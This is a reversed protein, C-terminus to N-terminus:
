AGPHAIGASHKIRKVRGLWDAFARAESEAGSVAHDLVVVPLDGTVVPGLSSCGKFDTQRTKRGVNRQGVPCGNLEAQFKEEPLESQLSIRDAVRWFRM